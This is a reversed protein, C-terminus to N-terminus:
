KQVPSSPSGAYIHGNNGTCDNKTLDRLYFSFLEVDMVDHHATQIQVEPCTVRTHCLIARFPCYKLEWIHCILREVHEDTIM